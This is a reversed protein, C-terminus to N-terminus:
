YTEVLVVSGEQGQVFSTRTIENPTHRPTAWTSGVPKQASLASGTGARTCLWHTHTPYPHLRCTRPDSGMPIIVRLDHM